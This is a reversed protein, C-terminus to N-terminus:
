ARYVGPVSSHCSQVQRRWRADSASIKTTNTDRKDSKATRRWGRNLSAIALKQAEKAKRHVFGLYEKVYDQFRLLQDQDSLGQHRDLVLTRVIEANSVLGYLPVGDTYDNATLIGLLLLHAPTPLDYQDLLDQKRFTKWDKGVPLTISTSVEYVLLDSNKTIIRVNEPNDTIKLCRAICNDAQHPCSCVSWGLKKLVDLVQTAAEPPARYVSKLRRYLQKTGKIKQADYDTQLKDM